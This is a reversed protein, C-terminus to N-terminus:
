GKAGAVRFRPLALIAGWPDRRPRSPIPEPDQPRRRRDADRLRDDQIAQAVMLTGAPYM